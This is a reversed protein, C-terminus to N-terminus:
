NSFSQEIISLCFQRKYVLSYLRTSNGHYARECEIRMDNKPNENLPIRLLLEFLLQFWMFRVEDTTLSRLSVNKSSDVNFISFPTLNKAYMSVDRALSSLLDNTTTSFMAFKQM